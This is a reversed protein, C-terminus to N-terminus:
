VAIGNFCHWRVLGVDLELTFSCTSRSSYLVIIVRIAEERSLKGM